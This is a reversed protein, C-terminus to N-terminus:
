RRRAADHGAAARRVQASAAQDRYLGRKAIYAAVPDPTLYGIPAGAAVRRRLDTSSIALEPIQLTRIRGAARPVTRVLGSLDAGPRSAVVVEALDFLDSPDKWTALQAAADTGVIFFLGTGPPVHARLRRLTEVTYTPGPHDIELRSVTFAPNPATALVTMLYRDEPDSVAEPKQWPQGTPVFVVEDLSLQHHAEAAAALHGHHVPDFTGGMIGLRRQRM